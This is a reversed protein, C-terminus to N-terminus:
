GARYTWVRAPPLNKWVRKGGRARVALGKVPVPSAPGYTFQVFPAGKNLLLLADKLLAVCEEDPRTMLPLSSVVAALPGTVVGELTKAMAYADGEVVRVGPFRERLLKCFDPNYEILVLREPAVGHALLAETVPGTGPGLEVVDGPVSVDVAEAMARALDKGSPSVAGTKLPSNLWSLIFRADDDLKIDPKKLKFDPTKLKFDIVPGKLQFRVEGKTRSVKIDSKEFRFPKEPSTSLDFGGTGMALVCRLYAMGCPDPLDTDAGRYIYTRKM